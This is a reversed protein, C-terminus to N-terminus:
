LGSVLLQQHLTTELILWLKTKTPYGVMVLWIHLIISPCLVRTVLWMNWIAAIIQVCTHWLLIQSVKILSM